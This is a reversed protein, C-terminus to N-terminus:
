NFQQASPRMHTRKHIKKDTYRDGDNQSRTYLIFCLYLDLYLYLYLYQESDM